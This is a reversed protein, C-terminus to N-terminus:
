GELKQKPSVISFHRTKLVLKARLEIFGIPYTKRMSPWDCSEFLRDLIGFINAGMKQENSDGIKDEGKSKLAKVLDLRSKSKSHLPLDM